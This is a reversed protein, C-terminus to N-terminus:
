PREGHFRDRHAKLFQRLSMAPRGLVTEITDFVDAPDALSGNGIRESYNSVCNMYTPDYGAAVIQEYFAQPNAPEYRWPQGTVEGLLGAIETMSASQAALHYARGHHRRPDRLVAATVAAIDGVDVWNVHGEGSFYSLVGPTAASLLLNQVFGAPRVHTFGLGSLELYAEILLHWGM